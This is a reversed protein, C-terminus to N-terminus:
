LPIIVLHFHFITKIGDPCFHDHATEPHHNKGKQDYTKRNVQHVLQIHPVQKGQGQGSQMKDKHQRDDCRDKPHKDTHKDELMRKVRDSLEGSGHLLHCFAIVIHFQICIRVLTLDMIKQGIKIMHYLFQVTSLCKVRIKDGTDGMFELGREGGDTSIGGKQLVICERSFLSIFIDIDDDPCCSFQRM